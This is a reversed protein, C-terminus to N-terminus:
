LASVVDDAHNRKFAGVAINTNGNARGFKM